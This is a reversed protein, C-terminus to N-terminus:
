KKIIIIGYLLIQPSLNKDDCHPSKILFWEYLM